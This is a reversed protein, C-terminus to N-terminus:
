KHTLYSVVNKTNKQITAIFNMGIKKFIRFRDPSDCFMINFKLVTAGLRNLQTEFVIPSIHSQKRNLNSRNKQFSLSLFYVM